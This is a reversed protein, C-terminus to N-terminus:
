RMLDTNMFRSIRLNGNSNCYIEYSQSTCIKLSNPKMNRSSEM